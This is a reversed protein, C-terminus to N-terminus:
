VTFPNGLRPPDPELFKSLCFYVSQKYRYEQFDLALPVFVLEEPPATSILQVSCQSEIVGDEQGNETDPAQKLLHKVFANKDGATMVRMQAEKRLCVKKISVGAREGPVVSIITLVALHLILMM